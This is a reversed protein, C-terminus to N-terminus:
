FAFVKGLCSIGGARNEKEPVYQIDPLKSPNVDFKPVNYVQIKLLCDSSKNHFCLCTYQFHCKHCHLRRFGRINLTTNNIQKQPM